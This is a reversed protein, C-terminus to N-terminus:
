VDDKRPVGHVGLPSGTFHSTCTRSLSLPFPQWAQQFPLLWSNVNDSWSQPGCGHVGETKSVSRLLFPWSSCSQYFLSWMLCKYRLLCLAALFLQFWGELLHCSLIQWVLRWSSLSCASLFHHYYCCFRSSVSCLFFSRSPLFVPSTYHPLCFSIVFTKMCYYLCFLVSRIPPLYLIQSQSLYLSICFSPLYSNWLTTFSCQLFCLLKHYCISIPIVANPDWLFDRPHTFFM